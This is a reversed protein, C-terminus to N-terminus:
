TTTARSRSSPASAPRAARGRGAARRRTTSSTSWVDARTARAHDPRARGGRRGGGAPARAHHRRADVRPRMAPPSARSVGAVLSSWCRRRRTAATRRRTGSGSASATSCRPRSRRARTRPCATSRSRARARRPRAARRRDPVAGLAARRQGATAEDDGMSVWVDTYLVDAGAAAEAPDATLRAGAGDELQYGDPAAVTVEVGALAASSRSRAPSTTATASTPSGAGARADGFAERMTMLDALAQCPHHEPSLM